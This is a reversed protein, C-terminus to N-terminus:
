RTLEEITLKAVQRVVAAGEDSSLKPFYICISIFIPASNPPRVFAVDDTAGTSNRGTKDGVEWGAPVAARTMTAGTTSNRLWAELRERSRRTLFDGALLQRLDRCMAEPTTTDHEDGPYAKNLDPENRDLHTFQDGLDRSFRTLGAPGGIASLILNGATNDSQEIAAACLDGLKMGGEHVHARTVPAYELLEAEDYRVFRDLNEREDDVNKLVAAAALLKFTSCMPFRQEGRYSITKEGHSHTAVVGINGGLSKEIRAIEEVAGAASGRDSGAVVFRGLEASIRAANGGGFGGHKVFTVVTFRAVGGPDFILGAFCGDSEPGPPNPGPGTGTKGGIQWRTEALIPAASKATGGEVVGRMAAQMKLATTKEMIRTAKPIANSASSPADESARVTPQVMVGDNGIAQLFRSLSLPTMTFRQEGLSLTDEWDKISTQGNMAVGTPAPTLRDKWQPPLEAWFTPANREALAGSPFGYRDLDRLVAQTGIAKRLARAIRREANDDGNVIMQSVSVGRSSFPDPLKHDWYSAALMLKVPSLPPVSTNVDFAAPDSAAFMVLSGTHVEQMVTVAHLDRFLKLAQANAADCVTRSSLAAACVAPEQNESQTSFATGAIGISLAFGLRAFRGVISIHHM